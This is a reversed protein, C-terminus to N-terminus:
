SDIKIRMAKQENSPNNYVAMCVKSLLYKMGCPMFTIM